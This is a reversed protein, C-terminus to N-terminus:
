TKILDTWESKEKGFLYNLFEIETLERKDPISYKM